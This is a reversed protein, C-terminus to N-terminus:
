LLGALLDQFWDLERVSELDPDALLHQKSPLQGHEHSMSLWKRSAESDGILAKVCALDYSGSGPVIAEARLLKEGALVFLRDAEEGTKQKAQSLLSNGWNCLAGHKDPKIRLAAEYKEDALAFLRDAEEGTKQKAQDLLATGWNFLVDHNDPKIRLATSYKEGALAFLRDAKEGTKQKAQDSLASGWNNLAEHRDPKIRLAAECKEGALAFMQDAEVGTKQKGHNLLTVGWNSLAGHSDPKIRLAEEYKESALAFLREAEEGTKQKAQDSLANGWNYFVEHKEPKIRLAADYKEGALAFLKDAEIGTAQKAQNSLSVGWNSLAISKQNTTSKPSNVVTSFANEAAMFRTGKLSPNDTKSAWESILVARKGIWGIANQGDSQSCYHHARDFQAYELDSDIQLRERLVDFIRMFKLPSRRLSQRLQQFHDGRQDLIRNILQTLGIDDSEDEGFGCVLEVLQLYEQTLYEDQCDRVFITEFLALQPHYSLKVDIKGIIKELNELRVKKTQIEGAPVPSAVIVTPKPDLRVATGTPDLVGVEELFQKTGNINQDNLATLVVLNDSLPGICLGGIETVGTRSDVLIFDYHLTPAPTGYYDPINATFQRTKLWYRLVNGIRILADRDLNGIGLSTM